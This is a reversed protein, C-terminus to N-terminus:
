RPDPKVTAALKAVLEALERLYGADQGDAHEAIRRALDDAEQQLDGM